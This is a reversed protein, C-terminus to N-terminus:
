LWEGEQGLLSLTRRGAAATHSRLDCSSPAPGPPPQWPPLILPRLWLASSRFSRRWSPQAWRDLPFCPAPAVSHQLWSARYPLSGPGLRGQRSCSLLRLGACIARGVSVQATKQPLQLVPPARSGRLPHWDHPSCCTPLQSVPLINRVSTTEKQVGGLESIRQNKSPMTASSGCTKALSSSGLQRNIPQNNIFITV